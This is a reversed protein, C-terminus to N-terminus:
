NLCNMISMWRKVKKKIYDEQASDHYAHVLVIYIAEGLQASNVQELEGQGRRRNSRDKIANTEKTSLLKMDIEETLQRQLDRYVQGIKRRVHQM